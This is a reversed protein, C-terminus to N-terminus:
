NREEGEVATAVAAAAAVMDTLLVPMRVLQLRRLIKTVYMAHMARNRLRLVNALSILTM